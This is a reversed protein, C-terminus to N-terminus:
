DAAESVAPQASTKERKPALFLADIVFLGIGISAVDAVNFTTHHFQGRCPAFFDIISRQDGQYM